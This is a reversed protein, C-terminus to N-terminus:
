NLYDIAAKTSNDLNAQGDSEFSAVLSEAVKKGLQVGWQDFSNINYIFGQIITSAEYLSILAGLSYADLSDVIILNSPRNGPMKKEVKSSVTEDSGLALVASQALANAALQIEEKSILNPKVVIFDVPILDKGQHIMQFFSHQSNTGVEGFVVPCAAQPLVTGDVSVSKGNSEMVLQQLYTAFYELTSAYGIVAINKCKLYNQNYYWSLAHWFALNSKLPAKHFHEDFDRMGQLMQSFVDRGFNMAISIGVASALSFRGGIWDWFEFIRDAKLGFEIAANQNTTIAVFHKAFDDMSLENLFAKKAREANHISELTTFTKSVIVFMTEKFNIQALVEDLERPDLNAVFFTKKKAGSLARHIFRPGLDSGGIGINVLYKIKPDNFVEQAFELFREREDIVLKEDPDPFDGRNARLLHHKVARNESRNIKEGATMAKIKQDLVGQANLENILLNVIAFDWLQKSFDIRIGCSSLTLESVRGPSNTLNERLYNTPLNEIFGEVKSNLTM